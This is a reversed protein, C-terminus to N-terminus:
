RFHDFYQRQQVGDNRTIITGESREPTGGSGVSRRAADEETKKREHYAGLWKVMRDTDFYFLRQTLSSHARNEYRFVPKVDPFITTWLYHFFVPDIDRSPENSRGPIQCMFMHPNWPNSGHRWAQEFCEIFSALSEETCASKDVGNWGWLFSTSCAGFGWGQFNLAGQQREEKDYSGKGIVVLKSRYQQGEIPWLEWKM